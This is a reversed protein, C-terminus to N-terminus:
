GLYDFLSRRGRAAVQLIAELTSQAQTMGLATEAFDADEISSAREDLTLFSVSLNEKAIDAANMNTGIQAQASMIQHNYVDMRVMTNRVTSQDDSDWAGRLAEVAATLDTFINSAADSFIKDATVGTAIATAGPEIQSYQATTSAAAPAATVPDFPPANQRTGGFLYEEGNKTNATSLIRGRLGEIETAIANRAEPTTTDSMAQAVLTRVHDMLNGLTNLSDDAMVLKQNASEASRQFQEIESQSTRLNLVAQAGAPDDSARNIRKGTTAREQMVAMLSRQSNIRSAFEANSTRDAIRYNM